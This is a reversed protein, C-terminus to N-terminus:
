CLPALHARKTVPKGWEGDFWWYTLGRDMWETLGQWRFAVEQPSAQMATGNLAPCPHDNFYTRLGQAKIWDFWSTRAVALDPFLEVNPSDYRKEDDVAEAASVSDAHGHPTNRWNM